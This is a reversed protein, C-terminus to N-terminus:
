PMVSPGDNVLRIDDIDVQLDGTADKGINGLEFSIRGLTTGGGTVDFEVKYETYETGVSVVSSTYGHWTYNNAADLWGISVNM